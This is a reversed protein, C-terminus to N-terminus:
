DQYIGPDLYSSENLYSFPDLFLTEGTLGKRMATPPATENSFDKFVQAASLTVGEWICIGGVNGDLFSRSSVTTEPSYACATLNITGSYNIGGLFGSGAISDQSSYSAEVGDAYINLDNGNVTVVIYRYTNDSLNASTSSTIKDTSIGDFFSAVYRGSTDSQLDFISGGGADADRQSFITENSGPTNNVKVWTGFSHAAGSNDTYGNDSYANNDVADGVLVTGSNFPGLEFTPAGEHTWIGTSSLDDNEFTCTPVFVAAFENDFEELVEAPTLTTGQWLRPRSLEGLLFARTSVTTQPSFAGLSLDLGGSYSIGTFGGGSSADQTTYAVEAGDIFINIDTGNATVILHHWVDDDFSASSVSTTRNAITTTAFSGVIQGSANINVAFAVAAGADNDRQNIISKEVSVAPIKFWCSVSQEDGSGSTFGSTNNANNDVGDGGFGATTNHQDDPFTPTGEHTWVGVNSLDDDTFTPTPVTM